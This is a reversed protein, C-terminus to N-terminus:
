ARGGGIGAPGAPPPGGPGASSGESGQTISGAPGATAPLSATGEPNAAQHERIKEILEEKKRVGVRDVGLEDAREQLKAMSIDELAVEPEIEDDGVVRLVVGLSQAASIEEPTAEGRGGLQIDGGELGSLVATATDDSANSVYEVLPM